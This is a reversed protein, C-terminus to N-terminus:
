MRKAFLFRKEWYGDLPSITVGPDGYTHIFQGNGAYMGVHGVIKNSEFRGPTFFFLLDGPQLNNTSVRRGVDSQGRSSRPIQIGFQDYVHQTFSSCDFRKSQSYPGTGFEYPVGLFKEAYRVLDSGSVNSVSATSAGDGAEELTISSLHVEKNMPNWSVDTNLLTSLSETTMYLQNAIFRPPQPLDIRKEGAIAEHEQVKVKYLPDTYGFQFTQSRDDFQSTFNFIEIAEEVPIWARGIADVRVPVRKPTEQRDLFLRATPVSSEPSELTRQQDNQNLSSCSVVLLMCVTLSFLQAAYRLTNKLLNM